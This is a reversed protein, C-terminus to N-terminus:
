AVLIVTLTLAVWGLVVTVKAFLKVTQRTNAIWFDPWYVRM